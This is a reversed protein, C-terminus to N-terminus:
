RPGVIKWTLDVVRGPNLTVSDIVTRGNMYWSALDGTGDHQWLLDTNGDGNFDGSGVVKWNADAVFRVSLYNSDVLTKGNMFWIAMEGNGSNRWVLDADGDGDMDDVVVVKWTQDAVFHSLSVSDILTRGNMYWVALEGTVSNQWFLDPKGDGNFDGSDM